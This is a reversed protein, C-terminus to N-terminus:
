KVAVVLQGAPVVVVAATKTIEWTLMAGVPLDLATNDLGLAATGNSLPITKAVFAVWNGSAVNTVLQGVIGILTGDAKRARVILTAFNTNDATLNAAPLYRISQISKAFTDVFYFPHEATATGAAGDAAEKQRRLQQLGLQKLFGHLSPTGNTANDRTIRGEGDFIDPNKDFFGSFASAGM